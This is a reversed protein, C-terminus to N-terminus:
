SASPSPGAGPLLRVRTEATALDLTRLRHAVEAASAPRAERKKELLDMILASLAAPIAL